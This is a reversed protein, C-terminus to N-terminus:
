GVAEVNRLGGASTVAARPVDDGGWTAGGANEGADFASAFQSEGGICTAAIGAGEEVRGSGSGGAAGGSGGAVGGVVGTSGKGDGCGQTAAAVSVKVSVGGAAVASVGACGRMGAAVAGIVIGIRVGTGGAAGSGIGFGGLPCPALGHGGRLWM